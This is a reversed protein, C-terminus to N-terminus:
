TAYFEPFIGNWLQVCLLITYFIILYLVIWCHNIKLIQCCQWSNPTSLHRECFLAYNFCKKENKLKNNTDTSTMLDIVLGSECEFRVAKKRSISSFRRKYVASEPFNSKNQLVNWASNISAISEKIFFHHWHTNHLHLM